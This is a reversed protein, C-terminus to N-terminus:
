ILDFSYSINIFFFINILISYGSESTKEAKQKSKKKSFLGFFGKKEKSKKKDKVKPQREAGIGDIGKDMSVAKRLAKFKNKASKKISGM